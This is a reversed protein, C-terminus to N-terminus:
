SLDVPRAVKFYVKLEGATLNTVTGTGFNASATFTAYLDKGTILKSSAKRIATNATATPATGSTTQAEALDDVVITNAHGHAPVSHTHPDGVPEGTTAADADSVGGTLDHGHVPVDHTHSAVAHTHAAVADVIYAGKDAALHGYPGAAEKADKAVMLGDADDEDGVQITVTKDTYAFPTVIRFIADEAFFDGLSTGELLKIAATLAAAQFLPDTYKITKSLWAGDLATLLPNQYSPAQKEAMRKIASWGDRKIDRPRNTGM